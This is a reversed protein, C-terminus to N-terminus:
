VFGMRQAPPRPPQYDLGHTSKVPPRPLVEADRWGRAGALAVYDAGHVYGADALARVTTRDLTDLAVRPADAPITAPASM